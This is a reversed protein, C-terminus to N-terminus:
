WKEIISLDIFQETRSYGAYNRNICVFTVTYNGPEAYSYEFSSLYNQLDKIAIGKDNEVGNLATPTTFIWADIGYKLAGAAVGRCSIMDESEFNVSGTGNNKFYPNLEENMTVVIPNLGSLYSTSLPMGEIDLTLEGAIKYTRQASVGNNVPHWHIAISCNELYESLDYEKVVTGKSDSSDEYDLKTWGPMGAESMQQVTARDAVGNFGNLGNFSNSIYVDLGGEVGWEHSYEMHLTASKVQQVPVSYRDRFAYQAGTEGSYFLINDAQGKMLFRVPEGALYSNSPDLTITCSVPQDIDHSCAAALLAAATLIAFGTKMRM